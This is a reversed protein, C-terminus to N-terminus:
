CITGFGILFSFLCLNKSNINTSKQYFSKCKVNLNFCFVIVRSILYACSNCAIEASALRVVSM